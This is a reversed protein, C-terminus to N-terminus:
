RDRLVLVRTRRLSFIQDKEQCIHHWTTNISITGGCHNLLRGLSAHM